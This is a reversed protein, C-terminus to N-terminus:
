GLVLAYMMAEDNLWADRVESLTDVAEIKLDYVRAKDIHANYKNKWDNFTDTLELREENEDEM